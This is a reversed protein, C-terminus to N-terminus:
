SLFLWFRRFSCETMVRKCAAVIFFCASIALVCALASGGKGICLLCLACLLYFM